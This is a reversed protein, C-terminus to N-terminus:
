MEWFSNLKLREYESQSVTHWETITKGDYEGSIQISWHPPDTQYYGPTHHGPVYYCSRPVSGYGGSCSEYGPSNSGPVYYTDEDDYHKDVVTGSKLHNPEGCSAVSFLIATALLAPLLKRM